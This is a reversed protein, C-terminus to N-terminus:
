TIGFHLHPIDSFTLVLSLPKDSVLPLQNQPIYIYIYVCMLIPDSPDEKVAFHFGLLEEKKKRIRKEMKIKALWM